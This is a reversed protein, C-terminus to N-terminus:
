PAAFARTEVLRHILRNASHGDQEMSDALEILEEHEDPLAPRGLAHEFVLTTMNMRFAQTQSAAQGWEVVSGIQQGLLYTAPDQDPWNPMLQRPREARYRGNGTPIVIGEYYSFAYALPDLTSHCQACTAQAVGKDDIDLPEGEIPWVGEGASLDMGLYARYAQAATTRPLASFMTNSMLFWQTTLMGARHEPELPQGGALQELEVPDAIAGEIRELQGDASEIVHYDATLLERIDRDGTMLYRWLRYDWDYDGLVVRFGAIIVDSDAGVPLIPKILPDAIAAVGVQQWYASDLCASLAHHLHEWAGSDDLARLEARQTYSPSYGCFVTMARRYAFEVDPQDLDYYPNDGEPTAPEIWWSTPDGPNTGWRIEELNSLGDGDSDADELQGLGDALGQEMSRGGLALMVEVGFPNWSPPDTSDHCTECTWVRGICLPSDPYEACAIRPALPSAEAEGVTASWLVGACAMM